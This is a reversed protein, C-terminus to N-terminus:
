TVAEPETGHGAPAFLVRNLIVFKAIWLVGFAALAAFNVLLKQGLTSSTISAAHSEAFDASWTSLILGLLAMGWFPVIEKMLHSRGTKGWAWVRNLQYSPIASLAVAVINSTRASWHFQAIFLIIQSVVVSIVSVLSYRVLKRGGPTRARELLSSPSLHVM